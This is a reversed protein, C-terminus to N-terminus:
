EEDLEESWGEDDSWPDYDPDARVEVSRAGVACVEAGQAFAKVFYTGPRAGAPLSLRANFNGSRGPTLVVRTVVRDNARLYRELETEGPAPDPRAMRDRSVELTLILEQTGRPARGRVVLEDGAQARDRTRLSVDQSPVALILAPDGLLNYMDVHRPMGARTEAPDAFLASLTLVEQHSPDPTGEVLARRARDLAPGLRPQDAAFLERVLGISLLANQVPHSVRSSGFFAVPGGDAALLAEGICDRDYRATWCAIAVFVPPASTASTGSSLRAVADLDLIPHRVGDVRLDDLHTTSGHGVYTFLLAGEDLRQTVRESFRQPPYCYSSRPSAYTLDIDMGPPISGGVVRAFLGEIAADAAEGFRGEGAVFACQKRWAGGSRAGEYAVTRAAIRALVAADDSPLRGVSVDPLGDDDLDGYPRDTAVDDVIWAPITPTDGALLLFRPQAEAVWHKIMGRRLRPELPAEPAFTRVEVDMGDATRRHELLPAVAAAAEADACVVLYDAARAAPATLLALLVSALLTRSHM